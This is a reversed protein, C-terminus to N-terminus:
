CSTAAEDDDDVGNECVKRFADTEFVSSGVRAGKAPNVKKQTLTTNVLSLSFLSLSAGRSTHLCAEDTFTKKETFWTPERARGYTHCM